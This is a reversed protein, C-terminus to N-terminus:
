KVVFSVFIALNAWLATPTLYTTKPYANVFDPIFGKLFKLIKAGNKDLNLFLLGRVRIVGFRYVWLGSIIDLSFKM